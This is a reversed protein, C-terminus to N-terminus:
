AIFGYLRLLPTGGRMQSMEPSSTQNDVERGPRNVELFFGRFGNFPLSPLSWLRDPREYWLHVETTDHVDMAKFSGLSTSSVYRASLVDIPDSLTVAISCCAM